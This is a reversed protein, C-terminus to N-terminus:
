KHNGGGTAHSASTCGCGQRAPSPRQPPSPAVFFSDVVNYLGQILQALMVPPALKWMIRGISETGLFAGNNATDKM